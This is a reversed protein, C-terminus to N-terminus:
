LEEMELSKLFEELWDVRSIFLLMKALSIIFIDVRGCGMFPTCFYCGRLTGCWLFLTIIFVLVFPHRPELNTLSFLCKNLHAVIRLLSDAVSAFPCSLRHQYAGAPPTILNGYLDIQQHNKNAQDM